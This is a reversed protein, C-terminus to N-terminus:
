YASLQDDSCELYLISPIEWGNTNGEWEVAAIFLHTQRREETQVLVTQSASIPTPRTQRTLKVRKNNCIDPRVSLKRTETYVIPDM